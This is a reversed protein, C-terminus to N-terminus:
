SKLFYFIIIDGGGKREESLGRKHGRGRLLPFDTNTVPSTQAVGGIETSFTLTKGHRRWMVAAQEGLDLIYDICKGDIIENDSNRGAV